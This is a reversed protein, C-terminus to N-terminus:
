YIKLCMWYIELLWMFSKSTPLRYTSLEGVLRVMEMQSINLLETTPNREMLLGQLIRAVSRVNRYFGVCLTANPIQRCFIRGIWNWWFFFFFSHFEEWFNFTMVSCDTHMEKGSILNRVTTTTSERLFSFNAEKSQYLWQKISISFQILILENLYQNILRKSHYDEM